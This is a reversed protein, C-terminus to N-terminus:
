LKIEDELLQRLAAQAIRFQGGLKVARLRGSRILRYVVATSVGLYDAVARPSMPPPPLPDIM